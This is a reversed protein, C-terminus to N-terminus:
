YNFLFVGKNQPSLPKNNYKRNNSIVFDCGAQKFSKQLYNGSLYFACAHQGGCVKHVNGDVCVKSKEGVKDKIIQMDHTIFNTRNSKQDKINNFTYTANVFTLISLLLLIIMVIKKNKFNNYIFSFISGYILIPIGIYYISQFDHFMTFHNMGFGWIFGSLAFIILINYENKYKKYQALISIIFIIILLAFYDTIHKKYHLSIYAPTCMTKIRDFQVQLIRDSTLIKAYKKDFDSDAGMRKKMSSVTDIENLPLNTMKSENFLQLSLIAVGLLLTFLGLKFYNTTFINKSEEKNKSRVHILFSYIIYLLLLTYVQWGLFIGVLSKILLQTFKSSNNNYVVIGHFVLLIGFLTPTDNFIMDNYYQIFLSAFSMLVISISLIKEKLLLQLSLYSLFMSGLYFFLMTYRAAMIQLELNNGFLSMVIKLILFSTIPFRNYANFIQNGQGDISINHFMLLNNEFSINKALTIGHSSLFGHHGQQFSINHNELFVVISGIFLLVMWVFWRSYVFDMYDKKLSKSIKKKKNM